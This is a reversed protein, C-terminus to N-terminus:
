ENDLSETPLTTIVDRAGRHSPANWRLESQCAVTTVSLSNPVCTQKWDFSNFCPCYNSFCVLLMLFVFFRVFERTFEPLIKLSHCQPSSSSDVSVECKLDMLGDPSFVWMSVYVGFVNSKRRSYNPLFSYSFIYIVQLLGSSLEGRM